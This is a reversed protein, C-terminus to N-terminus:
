FRDTSATTRTRTANNILMSKNRRSTAQRSEIQRIERSNSHSGDSPRSDRIPTRRRGAMEHRANRHVRAPQM